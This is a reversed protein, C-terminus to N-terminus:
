SKMEAFFFKGFIIIGEKVRVLVDGLSLPCPTQGKVVDQTYLCMQFAQIGGHREKEHGGYIMKSEREGGRQGDSFFSM